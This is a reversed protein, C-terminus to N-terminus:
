YRTARTARKNGTSNNSNSELLDYKELSELSNKVISAEKSVRPSDFKRKKPTEKIGSLQDEEFKLLDSELRSVHENVMQTCTSSVEVQQYGINKIIKIETSIRSLLQTKELSNLDLNQLFKTILEKLLTKSSQLKYDVQKLITYQRSLENPLSDLVDCYDLLHPISM